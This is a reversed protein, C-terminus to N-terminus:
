PRSSASRAVQLLSMEGDPECAAAEDAFPVWGEITWEDCGTATRRSCRVSAHGSGRGPDATLHLTPMPDEIGRPVASADVYWDVTVAVLMAM